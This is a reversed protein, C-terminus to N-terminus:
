PAVGADAPTPPPELEWTLRATHLAGPQSDVWGGLRRSAMLLPGLEASAAIFVALEPTQLAEMLPVQQMARAAARPDVQLEVGHAQTGGAEGLAGLVSAAVDADNALMLTSGHLSLTLTGHSFRLKAPDVKELAAAVAAVDTVEALWVQKLAFFRAEKTRLGAVVRVHSFAAAVSGSLHPTLAKALPTLVWDGPLERALRATLGSLENPPLRARVVGIGPASLRAFPSPGGNALKPGGSNKVRADAQLTLERASLTLAGPAKGSPVILQLPGPMKAALAVGGGGGPRTLLRGLEGTLADISRGRGNIACSQKGSMAWAVLVRGLPDMSGRVTVGNEQREFVEGMRRLRADCAERYRAPDKVQVCALQADGLQARTLGQRGDIGSQALAEPDLLNLDLLPHADAAWSEPRLIRSHAGAARFFPLLPQLADVSSVYTAVTADPPVRPASLLSLLLVPLM